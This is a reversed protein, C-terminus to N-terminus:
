ISTFQVSSTWLGHEFGLKLRFGNKECIEQAIALGLGLGDTSTTSRVFRGSLKEPSITPPLATNSISLENSSLRITLTGGPLNHKVANTLLNTLLTEALLPNMDMTVPRLDTRLVLQKELFFDELWRLRKELLPKWDIRERLAFQDNEIKVLLLLTQNLRAMRRASQAILDLQQMQVESLSEDQLLVDIKHQIIALPTQLEHSANETFQKVLRFDKQVKEALEELTRHLEHFETVSSDPLRLPTPDALRFQRMRDLVQFFPQWVRRSVSRNVWLLVGFLLLFLITLLGAVTAGIDEHEVSSQLLTVQWNKGRMKVPFTLQLFPEIENELPNLLSTDSLSSVPSQGEPQPIAYLRHDISNFIVPLTDHFRVYTEIEQRSHLLKEEDFHQLSWELAFFMAVGALVFVPAAIQLFLSQTRQLLKRM